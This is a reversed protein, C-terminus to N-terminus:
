NFVYLFYKNVDIKQSERKIKKLKNTADQLELAITEREKVFNTFDTKTEEIEASHKEHLEQSLQLVGKKFIIILYNFFLFGIKVLNIIM